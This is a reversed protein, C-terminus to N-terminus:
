YWPHRSISNIIWVSVSDLYLNKIAAYDSMENLVNEMTSRIGQQLLPDKKSIIEM